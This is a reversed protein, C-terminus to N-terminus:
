SNIEVLLYNNIICPLTGLTSSNTSRTRAKYGNLDGISSGEPLSTCANMFACVRVHLERVCVLM